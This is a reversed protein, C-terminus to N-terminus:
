NCNIMWPIGFQDTVTGWRKAWFTQQLPSSVNGKEALANFTREAADLDNIELQLSFGQPKQYYNPPADSAMFLTNGVTMQAHMIKDRWEAPVQTAMEPNDHKLLSQIKGGLVNEYFKFAAECRGDFMLYPNPNM